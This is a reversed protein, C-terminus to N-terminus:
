VIRESNTNEKEGKKAIRGIKNGFQYVIDSVEELEARDESLILCIGDKKLFFRVFAILLEKERETCFGIGNQFVIVKCGQLYAAINRLIVQQGLSLENITKEKLREIQFLQMLEELREETARNFGQRLMCYMYVYEKSNLTSEIKENPIIELRRKFACDSQEEMKEDLQINTIEGYYGTIINIFEKISDSDEFHLGTIMGSQIVIKFDGLNCKDSDRIEVLLIADGERKQM